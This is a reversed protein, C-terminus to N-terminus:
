LVNTMFFSLVTQNLFSFTYRWKTHDPKFFAMCIKYMYKDKFVYLAM